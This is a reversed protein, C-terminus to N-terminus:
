PSVLVLVRTTAGNLTSGNDVLPTNNYFWKINSVVSPNPTDINIKLYVYENADVMEINGVGISYM